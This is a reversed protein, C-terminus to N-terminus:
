RDYIILMYTHNIVPNIRTIHLVSFSTLHTFLIGKITKM